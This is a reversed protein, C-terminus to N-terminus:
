DLNGRTVEGWLKAGTWQLYWQMNFRSRFQIMVGSYLQKQGKVTLPKFYSRM